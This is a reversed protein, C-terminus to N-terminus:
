SLLRAENCDIYEHVGKNDIKDGFRYFSSILIYGFVQMCPYRQITFYGLICCRTGYNYISESLLASTKDSACPPVMDSECSSMIM